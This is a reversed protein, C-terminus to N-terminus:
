ARTPARRPPPKGRTRHPLRGGGVDGNRLRALRVRHQVYEYKTKRGARRQRDADRALEPNLVPTGLWGNILAAKMWAIIAYINLRMVAGRRSIRKSRTEFHRPKANARSRAEYHNRELAQHRTRAESYAPHTRWVPLLRMPDVLCSKEQVGLCEQTRRPPASHLAPDPTAQRKPGQRPELFFTVQDTGEGCGRCHPVGHRDCHMTAQAKPAGKSPAKYPSVLTIGRVM